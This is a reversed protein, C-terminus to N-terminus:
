PASPSAPGSGGGGKGGAAVAVAVGAAAGAAVLILIGSSGHHTAAPATSAPAAAPAQGAPESPAPQAQEREQELVPSTPAACAETEGEPLTSSRGSSIETVLAAGRRATIMSSRDPSVSILYTAAKGPQAPAIRCRPTEISLSDSGNTEALVTGSLIKALPNGSPNSFNVTTEEALSVQTSASIKVLAAGGKATSLTDGALVTGPGPVAVGGVSAGSSSIIQGIAQQGGTARVTNLFLGLVVCLCIMKRLFCTLM